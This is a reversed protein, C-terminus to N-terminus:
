AHKDLALCVTALRKIVFDLLGLTDPTLRRVRYGLQSHWRVVDEQCVIHIADADRRWKTHFLAPDTNVWFAPERAGYRILANYIHRKAEIRFLEMGALHRMSPCIYGPIDYKPCVIIHTGDPALLRDVDALFEDPTTIHELVFFSFVIDYQGHLTRLPGFHVADAVQELRDSVARTIDQATYHFMGRDLDEVGQFVSGCGAGVELVRVRRDIQCYKRRMERAVLKLWVRQGCPTTFAAYDPTTNYFQELRQTLWTIQEGRFQSTSILPHLRYPQALIALRNM